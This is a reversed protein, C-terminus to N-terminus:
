LCFFSMSLFLIKFEFEILCVM